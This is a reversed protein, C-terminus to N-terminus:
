YEKVRDFFEVLEYDITTLSVEYGRIREKKDLHKCICGEAAILGRLKAKEYYTHVRNPIKSRVSADYGKEELNKIRQGEKDEM